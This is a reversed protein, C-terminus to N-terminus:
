TQTDTRRDTQRDTQRRSNECELLILWTVLCDGFGYNYVNVHFYVHKLSLHSPLFFSALLVHLLLTGLVVAYRVLTLRPEVQLQQLCYPGIM